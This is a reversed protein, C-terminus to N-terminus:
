PAKKAAQSRIAAATVEPYEGFPISNYLFDDADYSYQVDANPGDGSFPSFASKGTGIQSNDEM